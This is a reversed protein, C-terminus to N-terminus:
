SLKALKRDFEEKCREYEEPNEQKLNEIYATLTEKTLPIGGSDKQLKKMEAEADYEPKSSNGGVVPASEPAVEPEVPTDPTAVEPASPTEEAPAQVEPPTPEGKTATTNEGTPETPTEVPTEEVPTEVVPNEINTNEEIM